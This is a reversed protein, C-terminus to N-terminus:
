LYQRLKKILNDEEKVIDDVLNKVDTDANEYQNLYKNISQIGMSCGETMLKSIEADTSNMLVGINIKMWSMMEAVPNPEKDEVGYRNLMEHTKNGLKEHAERSKKIEELMHPDSIKPEVESLSKVAMKIGANCEKLLNTTDDNPKTNNNM